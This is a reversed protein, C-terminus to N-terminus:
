DARVKKVGVFVEIAADSIISINDGAVGNGRGEGFSLQIPFDATIGKWVELTGVKATINAASPASLDLFQVLATYNSAVSISQTGSGSFSLYETSRDIFRDAM